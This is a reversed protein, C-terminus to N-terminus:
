LKEKDRQFTLEKKVKKGFKELAAIRFRLATGIFYKIFGKVKVPYM